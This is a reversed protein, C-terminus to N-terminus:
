EEASIPNAWLLEVRAKDSTSLILWHKDTRGTAIGETRAMICNLCNTFPALWKSTSSLLVYLLLPQGIVIDLSRQHNYLMWTNVSPRLSKLLQWAQIMSHADIDLEPDFARVIKPIYYQRPKYVGNCGEPCVSGSTIRQLKRFLFPLHLWRSKINCDQDIYTLLYAMELRSEDNPEQIIAKISQIPANGHMDDLQLSDTAYEERFGCLDKYRSGSYSVYGWVVRLRSITELPLAPDEVGYHYVCLGNGVRALQDTSPLSSCNAPNGPVSSDPVSSGPVSSGSLVHFALDIGHVPYDCNMVSAYFADQAGWACKNAPLQWTYLNSLGTTSPYVDDDIDSDVLIWLFIVITEALVLLCITDCESPNLRALRPQHQTCRCSGAISELASEAAVNVEGPMPLHHSLHVSLEPLRRAAFSLFRQGRSDPHIWILPNVPHNAFALNLDRAYTDYKDNNGTDRRQLLCICKLYLAFAFIGDEISWPVQIRLLTDVSEGFVDHLITSWSSRWNLVSTGRLAPDKQLLHQGKPIVSAKSKLLLESSGATATSCLVITFQPLREASERSRYLLVGSTDCIGVDLALISEAFAALWACDLGGSFTANVFGRKSVRALTLIAEALALPTTPSHRSELPLQLHGSILRRFGNALMVFRSSTLIGACLDVLMKWQRLAPTFSQPAKCLVCLERIVKAAFMSDYTTSLTACLAVLTLGEETDALDTIVDKIGFGFWILDGYSGYKRAKHIAEAVFEQARPELAFNCCITRGFQLTFADIGAKSLRALVAVSFQVSSQSLAVWDVSGQQAFNSSGSSPVLAGSM